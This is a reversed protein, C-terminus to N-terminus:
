VPPAPAPDTLLASLREYARQRRCSEARLSQCAALLRERRQENRELLWDIVSEPDIQAIRARLKETAEAAREAANM